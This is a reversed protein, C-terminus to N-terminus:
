CAASMFCTSCGSPWPPQLPGPPRHRWGTGPCCPSALLVALGAILLYIVSVLRPAAQLGRLGILVLVELTLLARDYRHRQELLRDVVGM